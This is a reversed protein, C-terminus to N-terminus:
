TPNAVPVFSNYSLYPGEYIEESKHAYEYKHCIDTM